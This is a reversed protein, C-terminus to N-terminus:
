PLDFEFCRLEPPELSLAGWLGTPGAGEKGLPSLPIGKCRQLALSPYITAFITSSLIQLSYILCLTENGMTECFAYSIWLPPGSCVDM